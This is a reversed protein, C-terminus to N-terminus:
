WIECIRDGLRWSKETGGHYINRKRIERDSKRM